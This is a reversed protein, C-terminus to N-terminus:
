FGVALQATAARIGGADIAAQKGQLEPGAKKRLRCMRAPADMDFFM